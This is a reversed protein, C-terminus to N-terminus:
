RSDMRANAQNNLADFVRDSKGEPFTVFKHADSSVVVLHTQVGYRRATERLKPLILLALLFTSIVNTTMTSEDEEAKRFTLTVIAANEVIVDLRPLNKAREAFRIVSDYKSLDLHWVEIVSEANARTTSNVISAKAYEGKDLSRVALIVKQAGLEVLHRATELGLGGNAGTVIVTQGDYSKTPSAPVVWLQGYLFELWAYM